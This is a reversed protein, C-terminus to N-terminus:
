LWKRVRKKYELFEVGFIKELHKEERPIQTMHITVFFAVPALFILPTGVSVAIGTLVLTLGLYMPNRSLQMPGSTVLKTPTEFPQHTTGRKKFVALAWAALFIGIVIFGIGIYHYPQEIMRSSPFIFHLGLALLLFILALIPPRINM